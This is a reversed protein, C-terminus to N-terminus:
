CDEIISVQVCEVVPCLSNGYLTEICPAHFICLQLSPSFFLYLSISYYIIM